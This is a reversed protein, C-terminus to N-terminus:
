AIWSEGGHLIVLETELGSQWLHARFSEASGGSRLWNPRAQMDLHIPIVTQPKLLGVARVAEHEDMTMPLRTTFVPILAARLPYRDAIDAMFPRCFTDGAFYINMGESSIIYGVAPGYHRAPVVHVPSFEQGPKVGVVNQGGMAVVQQHSAEPALVPTTPPLLRLYTSDIHDYHTHSILVMSAKTLESRDYAPPATRITLATSETSFFPDTVIRLEGTEILLCSHGIM